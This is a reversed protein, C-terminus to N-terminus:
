IHAKLIVEKDGNTFTAFIVVFNKWCSSCAGELVITNFIIDDPKADEKGLTQPEFQHGLANYGDVTLFDVKDAYMGGTFTVYINSDIKIINFTLNDYSLLRESTDEIMPPNQVKISVLKNADDFCSVISSNKEQISIIYLAKLSNEGERKLNTNSAAEIEGGSLPSTNITTNPYVTLFYQVEPLDKFTSTINALSDNDLGINEPSTTQDICGSVLIIEIMIILSLILVDTRYSAM